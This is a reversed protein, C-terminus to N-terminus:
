VQPGAAIVDPTAQDAYKKFNENFLVGLKSVEEKFSASGTWSKAPNL